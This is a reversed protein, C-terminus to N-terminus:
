TDLLANRIYITYRRGACTRTFESRQINDQAVDAKGVIPMVTHGAKCKPNKSIHSMDCSDATVRVIWM